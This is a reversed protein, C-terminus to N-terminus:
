GFVRRLRRWADRFVNRGLHGGLKEAGARVRRYVNDFLEAVADTADDDILDFPAVGTPELAHHVLPDRQSVAVVDALPINQAFRANIAAIFANAILADATRTPHIGDLSFVGGLYGAALDVRGDGDLDVGTARLADFLTFMDVLAV